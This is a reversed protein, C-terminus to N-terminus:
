KTLVFLVYLMSTDMKYLTRTTLHYHMQFVKDCQFYVVNM